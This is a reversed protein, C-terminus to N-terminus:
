ASLNKIKANVNLNVYHRDIETKYKQAIADRKPRGNSTYLGTEFLMPQELVILAKIQAYDPLKMNIVAIAKEILLSPIALNLPVLIMLCFPKDDGILVAQQFLGCALVESEVWEPSINRGFSNIIINKLRGTIYIAGQKIEAIDGTYTRNQYWSSEDGVYGLFCNGEVVLEGNEVTAHLHPLLVGASEIDDQNQKGLNPTCLSVVSSCESLGYGQYVPLSIARAKTILSSSVKSGGVAVFKLTTPPSWGQEIAHILVQLLEPVLILSDPQTKSICALLQPLNVLRSGEFGREADNAIIVSGGALLPSYVGAINELLTPLPLLCLHRPKTLRICDVLSAAVNFQNEISLCVGKPTGTSGSTFTIKSTGIPLSTSTLHKLSYSNLSLGHDAEDKHYPVEEYTFARDSMIISPKVANVLNEFQSTTFFLPIPTFIVGAKQCAFDVVIWEISNEAYLALSTIKQQNLWLAFYNVKSLLTGYSMLSGTSEIAIATPNNNAITKLLLSM